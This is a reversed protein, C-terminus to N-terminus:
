VVTGNVNISEAIAYPQQAQAKTFTTAYTFTQSALSKLAYLQALTFANGDAWLRKVTKGEPLELTTLDNDRLYVFSNALNTADKLSFSTLKNGGFQFTHGTATNAGITVDTLENNLVTFTKVLPNNSFDLTKLKNGSLM